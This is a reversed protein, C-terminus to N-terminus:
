MLETHLPEASGTHDLASGRFQVPLSLEDSVSTRNVRFVNMYHLAVLFGKYSRHLICCTGLFM